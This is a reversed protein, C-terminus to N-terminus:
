IYDVEDASIRALQSDTDNAKGALRKGDILIPSESGLGRDGDSALTGSGARILEIGPVRDLMDNITTPNFQAFYSAPFTITSDNDASEQAHTMNTLSALTAYTIGLLWNKAYRMVLM